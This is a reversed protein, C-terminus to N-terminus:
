KLTDLVRKCIGNAVERKSVIWTRFARMNAEIGSIVLEDDTMELRCM